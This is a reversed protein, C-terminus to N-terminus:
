PAQFCRAQQANYTAASVQAIDKTPQYPTTRGIQLARDICFPDAQMKLWPRGFWLYADAYTRAYRRVTASFGYRTSGTYTTPPYGLTNCMTQTLTRCVDANDFNNTRAGRRLLNSYQAHTFPRGNDATDIVFHKGKIGLRNLALVLNRGYVINDRTSDYHTAGLAFGRVKSVGSNKLLGLAQPITLWDASGADIYVTTHPLATLRAVAYRTLAQRAGTDATQHRPLILPLDPELVIVTRTSGIARAAADYWAKYDVKDAASLARRDGEGRPWMRFFAMPVVVSEDGKQADDLYRRLKKVLVDGTGTWRGYWRLRPQLASKALLRKTDGNASQWSTYIKNGADTTTTVGIRHGRLPNDPTAAVATTSLLISVSLLAIFALSTIGRM